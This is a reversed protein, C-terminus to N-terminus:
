RSALPVLSVKDAYPSKKIEGVFQTLQSHTRSCFFFQTYKTNEVATEEEEDSDLNLEELLLDDDTDKKKEKINDEIDDQKKSKQGSNKWHKKKSINEAQIKERFKNRREVRRDLAELKEQVIRKEANVKLQETQESFWDNACKDSIDKLKNNLINLESVLLDKCSKEYDVLWKLAGCIISLSKGTGTPSEFIGLKGNDLCSYLNKMFDKQIEYPPFPFPFEANADM